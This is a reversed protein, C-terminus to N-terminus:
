NQPGRILLIILYLSLNLAWIIDCRPLLLSSIFLYQSFLFLGLHPDSKSTNFHCVSTDLTCILNCRTRLMSSILLWCVNSIKFLYLKLLCIYQARLNYSRKNKTNVHHVALCVNLIKVLRIVGIKMHEVSPYISTNIQCRTRPISTIFLLISM